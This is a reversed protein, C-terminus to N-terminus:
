VLQVWESLPLLENLIKSSASSVIWSLLRCHLCLFVITKSESSQSLTM